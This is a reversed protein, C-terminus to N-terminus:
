QDGKQGDIDNVIGEASKSVVTAESKKLNLKM